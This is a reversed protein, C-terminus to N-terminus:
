GAPYSGEPPPIGLDVVGDRIEFNRTAAGAFRCVGSGAFRGSVWDESRNITLTGSLISCIEFAAGTADTRWLVVPTCPRGEPDPCTGAQSDGIVYNDRGEINAVNMQLSYWEGGAQQHAFVRLIRHPPGDSSVYVWEGFELFGAGAPQHGEAAFPQWAGGEFRYSFEM